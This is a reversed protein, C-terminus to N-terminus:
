ISISSTTLVKYQSILKNFESTNKNDPLESAIASKEVIEKELNGTLGNSHIPASSLEALMNRLNSKYNPDRHNTLALQLNVRAQLLADSKKNHFEEDQVKSKKDMTAVGFFIVLFLGLLIGQVVLATNESTNGSIFILALVAELMMYTSALVKRVGRSIVQKDADFLKPLFLCLFAVNFFIISIIGCAPGHTGYSLFYIGNGVLPIALYILIMPLNM